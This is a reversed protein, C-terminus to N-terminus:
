LISLQHRNVLIWNSHVGSCVGNGEEFEVRLIGGVIVLRSLPSVLMLPM